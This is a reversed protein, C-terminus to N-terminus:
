PRWWRDVREGSKNVRLLLTNINTGATSFSGAPLDNFCGGMREVLARFAQSKKTERFETGASMVAVLMGDPELFHLAHTVHDIDRERDFPPNMAVVDYLGTVKPSLTLFDAHYVKRVREDARLADALHQQIEVCDIIPDHLYEDDRHGFQRPQDPFMARVLAGGGANPELIRRRPEDPRRWTRAAGVVSRALGNPTPYFGHYKAPTTKKAALPDEEATQGDGVVEGYYEALLKNVKEVLDDRVFWLHANGNKFGRIRFYETETLSQRPGYHGRRDNELAFLSSSYSTSNIGDLVAFAREIDMLTDRFGGYGVSGSHGDFAYTLVVRSGIKFGDHSRFRRDLKSFANAIGRRFIVDADAAFRELTARVNEVTIPPMGREVEDETILQNRRDVKDPVYQMQRRLQDKAEKDMLRELATHEVIWSWVSLDVLRRAVRLYADRDPLRVAKHFAEVERERGDYFHQNPAAKDAEARAARIKADAEAVAAFAEEYLEIARNRHGVIQEITARPILAGGAGSTEGDIFMM